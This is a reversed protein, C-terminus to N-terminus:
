DRGAVLQTEAKEAGKGGAVKAQPNCQPCKAHGDQTPPTQSEFLVDHKPCRHIAV